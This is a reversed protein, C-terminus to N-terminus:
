KKKKEKGLLWLAICSLGAFFGILLNWFNNTQEVVTTGFVVYIAYGTCLLLDVLGAYLFLNGESSTSVAKASKAKKVTKVPKKKKM